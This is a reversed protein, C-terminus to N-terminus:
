HCGGSGGPMPEQGHEEAGPIHPFWLLTGEVDAPARVLRPCRWPSVEHGISCM